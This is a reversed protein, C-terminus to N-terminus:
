PYPPQESVPISNIHPTTAEFPLEIGAMRAHIQLDELLQRVRDPGGHDLVWDLSELWERTEIADANVNTIDRATSDSM